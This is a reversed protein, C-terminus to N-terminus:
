YRNRSKAEHRVFLLSLSDFEEITSLRMLNGDAKPIGGETM